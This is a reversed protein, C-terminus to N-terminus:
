VKTVTTSSRVPAQANQPGPSRLRAALGRAFEDALRDPEYRAAIDTAAARSSAARLAEAAILSAALSGINGPEFTRAANANVISEFASGRPVVVPLGFTLALMLVGSNLSRQYPIVAVDAARLYLQMEDGPIRRPFLLVFPHLACRDIVVEEGPLGSPAGAVLLRRRGPSELAQDFADLLDSLGKYPRIAGFVGYVMEDPDLGLQYRAEERSVVDAYAGRYSPHPVRLVKEPDISFSGAAARDTAAALVHVVAARDAIAQQLRAEDDPFRSDHPLINHVTWALEGGTALFADLRAVFAHRRGAAEAPTEAGALIGKTWHLHLVVRPGIKLLAVLDDLWDLSALPVPAIGHEWCRRYLLSQYPNVRAVPHYALVIPAAAGLADLQRLAFLTDAAAARREQTRGRLEGEM